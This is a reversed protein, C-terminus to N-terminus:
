KQSLGFLHTLTVIDFIGAMVNTANENLGLIDDVSNPLILREVSGKKAVVTYM